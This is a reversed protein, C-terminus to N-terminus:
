DKVEKWKLDVTLAEELHRQILERSVGLRPGHHTVGVRRAEQRDLPTELVRHNQLPRPTVLTLVKVPRVVQLLAPSFRSGVGAKRIYSARTFDLMNM